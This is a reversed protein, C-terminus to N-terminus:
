LSRYARMSVLIQPFLECIRQWELKGKPARPDKDFHCNHCISREVVLPPRGKGQRISITDRWWWLNCGTTRNCLSCEREM